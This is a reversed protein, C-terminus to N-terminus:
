LNMLKKVVEEEDFLNGQFCTLRAKNEPSIGM